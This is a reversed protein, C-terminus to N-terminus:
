KITKITIIIVQMCETEVILKMLLSMSNKYTYVYYSLEVCPM